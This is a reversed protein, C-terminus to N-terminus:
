IALDHSSRVYQIYGRNVGRPFLGHDSTPNTIFDCLAATVEDVLRRIAAM